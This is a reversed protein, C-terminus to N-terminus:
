VNSRCNSRCDIIRQAAVDVPLLRAVRGHPVSAPPRELAAAPSTQQLRSQVQLRPGTAIGFYPPPQRRRPAKGVHTHGAKCNSPPGATTNCLASQANAPAVVQQMMDRTPQLLEFKALLIAPSVVPLAALTAATKADFHHVKVLTAVNQETNQPLHWPLSFSPDVDCRMFGSIANPNSGMYNFGPWGTNTSSRSTTGDIGGSLPWVRKSVFSPMAPVAQLYSPFTYYGDLPIRRASQDQATTADIYTDVCSTYVDPYQERLCILEDLM